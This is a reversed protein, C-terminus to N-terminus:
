EMNGSHNRAHNQPGIALRYSPPRPRALLSTCRTSKPIYTLNRRPIKNPEWEGGRTVKEPGEIRQRLEFKIMLMHRIKDLVDVLYLGKIKRIWSNFSEALNNNV